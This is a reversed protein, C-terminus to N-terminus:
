EIELQHLCETFGQLLVLECSFCLTLKSSIKVLQLTIPLNAGFKETDRRTVDRHYKALHGIALLISSIILKTQTPITIPHM